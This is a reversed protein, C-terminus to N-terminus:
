EGTADTAPRQIGFEEDLSAGDATAMDIWHMLSLESATELDANASRKM